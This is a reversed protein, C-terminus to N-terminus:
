LWSFPMVFATNLHRNWVIHLEKNLEVHLVVDLKTILSDQFIKLRINVIKRSGRLANNKLEPLIGVM